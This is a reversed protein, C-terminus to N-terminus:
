VGTSSTDHGAGDRDGVTGPEALYQAFQLQGPHELGKIGPQDLSVGAVQPVQLEQLDQALVLDGAALRYGQGLPQAAGPELLLGGQFAEVRGGGRFQGGRLDAVQGCQAPQV